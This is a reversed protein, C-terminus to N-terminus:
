EGRLLVIECYNKQPRKRKGLFLDHMLVILFLFSAPRCGPKLNPISYGSVVVMYEIISLSIAQHTVVSGLGRGIIFGNRCKACFSNEVATVFREIM